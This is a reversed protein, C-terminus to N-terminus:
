LSDRISQELSHSPRWGMEDRIKESSCPKDINMDKLPRIGPNLRLTDLVQLFGDMIRIGSESLPIIRAKKGMTRLVTHAFEVMDVNTTTVIYREGSRGRTLALVVARTVDRVDVFSNIYRIIPTVPLYRM